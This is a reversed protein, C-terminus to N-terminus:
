LLKETELIKLYKKVTRKPVTFYLYSRTDQGLSEIDEVAQIVWESDRYSKQYKEWNWVHLIDNEDFTEIGIIKSKPDFGLIEMILVKLDNPTLGNEPEYYKYIYNDIFRKEDHDILNFYLDLKHNFLETAKM